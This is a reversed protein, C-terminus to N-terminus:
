INALVKGVIGIFSTFNTCEFCNTRHHPLRLSSYCSSLFLPQLHWLYRRVIFLVGSLCCVESVCKQSVRGIRGVRSHGVKGGGHIWAAPVTRCCEESIELQDANCRRGTRACGVCCVCMSNKEFIRMFQLLHIILSVLVWPCSHFCTGQKLDYIM